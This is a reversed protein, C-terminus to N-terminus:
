ATSQDYSISSECQVSLESLRPLSGASTAATRLNRLGARVHGLFTKLGKVRGLFGYAGLAQMLRQTSAEWFATRYAEYDLSRQALLYHSSLLEEREGASFSVYPDCLLSGLDYFPNGFRMGQFDILFPEGDRVMANQSQLDRHILCRAGADLRDALAALEAELERACEQDLDIECVGTLFHQRFYDREWKYLGPGFAEMLKVRGAPFEEIPFSHLKHIIVLTKQYITRRTPWPADRLCWLDTDGLDEMLVYCSVPDHRIMRPVPIEIQVLFRAIDAFLCNEIRKPEYHVLIASHGCDWNVRFYRRDSGRGQLPIIQIPASESVDLAERVFRLVPEDSTM